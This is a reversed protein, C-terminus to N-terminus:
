RLLERTVPPSASSRGCAPCYRKRPARRQILAVDGGLAMNSWKRAIARPWRKAIPTTVIMAAANARGAEPCAPAELSTTGTGDALGITAARKSPGPSHSTPPGARANTVGTTACTAVDLVHAVPSGAEGETRAVTTAGASHCPSAASARAPTGTPV